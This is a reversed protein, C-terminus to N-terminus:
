AIAAAWGDELGYSPRFDLDRQILSGDVAMDEMLKDVLAAKVPSQVGIGDALCEVVSIARRVPGAPVYLMREKKRMARQIARAIADFTHVSGDTVNYIKGIAEQCAAVLLAARAVDEVHVLTRRN